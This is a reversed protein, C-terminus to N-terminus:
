SFSTPSIFEPDPGILGLRGSRQQRLPATRQSSHEWFDGREIIGAEVCAIYIKRGGYRKVISCGYKSQYARNMEEYYWLRTRGGHYLSAM